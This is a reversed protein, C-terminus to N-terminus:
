GKSRRARRKSVGGKGLAHLLGRARMLEKGTLPSPGRSTAVPAAAVLEEQALLAPSPRRIWNRANATSMNVTRPWRAGRRVSDHQVYRGDRASAVGYLFTGFKDLFGTWRYCVCGVLCDISPLVRDPCRTGLTHPSRASHSGRAGM